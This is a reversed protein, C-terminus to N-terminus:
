RRRARIAYNIAPKEVFYFSLTALAISVASVVVFNFALGSWTDGHM